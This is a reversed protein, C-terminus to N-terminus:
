KLTEKQNGIFPLKVTDPDVVLSLAIWLIFLVATLLLILIVTQFAGGGRTKYMQAAKDAADPPLYYRNEDSEPTKVLRRLASGKKLVAAATRPLGLESLTLASDPSGCKKAILAAVTRESLSGFVAQWVIAAAFGLWVPVLVFLYKVEFM